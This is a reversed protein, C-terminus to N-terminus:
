DSNKRNELQAERWSEYQADPNPGDDGEQDALIEKDLALKRILRDIERAGVKGSVILRFSAGKSLLGTTLVREGEMLLIGENRVPTARAPDQRRVEVPASAQGTPRDNWDGDRETFASDDVIPPEDRHSKTEKEEQLYSYTDLYSKVAPSIAIEAFGERKLLNRLGHESVFGDPFSERIRAFLEPNFAAEIKAARREPESHSYLAKVATESVRLDGKGTREILNFHSLNSLMKASAGTLGSYGAEKVAAERDIPNRRVKDYIKRVIELAQRISISPYGPSRIRTM